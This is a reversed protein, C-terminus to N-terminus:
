VQGNEGGRKVRKHLPEEGLVDSSLACFYAWLREAEEGTASFGGKEKLRDGRTYIDVTPGVEDYHIAVIDGLSVIWSGVRLWSM